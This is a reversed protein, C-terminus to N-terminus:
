VSNLKRIRRQAAGNAGHLEVGDFGAQIGNKAATTFDQVYQKIEELSLERPIRDPASKLPIPSPSVLEQGTRALVEPFAARGGAALQLFIYAGKAHVSDTVQDYDDSAFPLPISSLLLNVGKEM